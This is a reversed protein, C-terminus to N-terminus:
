PPSADSNPGEELKGSLEAERMFTTVTEKHCHENHSDTASNKTCGNAHTVYTDIHECMSHHTVIVRCFLLSM